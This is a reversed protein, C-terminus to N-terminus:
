RSAPSSAASSRASSAATCSKSRRSSPSSGRSRRARPERAAALRSGAAVSPVLPRGRGGRGRAARSGPDLRRGGRAGRRELEEDDVLAHSRRARDHRRERELEDRRNRARAGAGTRRHAARRAPRARPRHDSRRRGSRSFSGRDLPPARRGNGRAGRAPRLAGEPCRGPLRGRGHGVRPRDRPGRAPDREPEGRGRARRAPVARARIRALARPRAGQDREGTRLRHRRGFPRRARGVADRRARRSGCPAAGAVPPRTPVHARQRRLRRHDRRREHRRPERAPTRQRAGPRAGERRRPGAGRLRHAPARTTRAGDGSGRSSRARGRSRDRQGRRAHHGVAVLWDDDQVVEIRGQRPDNPSSPDRECVMDLHAQLVVTPAGERGPSAPVRVVVNGAADVATDLGRAAAWALVHERVREEEKPPRPIRTLALFHRFVLAPELDGM